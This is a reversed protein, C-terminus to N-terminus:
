ASKLIVVPSSGLGQCLVEEANLSGQLIPHLCGCFSQLPQPSGLSLSLFVSSYFSFPCELELHSQTGFNWFMHPFSPFVTLLIQLEYIILILALLIFNFSIFIVKIYTCITELKCHNLKYLKEPQLHYLVSICDTSIM